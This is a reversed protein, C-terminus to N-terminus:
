IMEKFISFAKYFSNACFQLQDSNSDRFLSIGFHNTKYGFFFLSLQPIRSTVATQLLCDCDSQFLQKILPYEFVAVQTSKSYCSFLFQFSSQILQLSPYVVISYQIFKKINHSGLNLVSFYYSIQNILELKLITNNNSSIVRQSITQMMRPFSYNIKIFILKLQKFFM